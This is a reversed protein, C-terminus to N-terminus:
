SMHATSFIKENKILILEIIQVLVAPSPRESSIFCARIHQAKDRTLYDSM